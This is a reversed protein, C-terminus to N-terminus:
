SQSQKQSLKSLFVLLQDSIVVLVLTSIIMSPTIAVQQLKFLTLWSFASALLLGRRSNLSVFTLLFFSSLFVLIVVPWYNIPGLSYLPMSPRTNTFFWGLIWAFVVGLFLLHLHKLYKSIPVSLSSTSTSLHRQNKPSFNRRAVSPKDERVASVGAKKLRSGAKLGTNLSFDARLRSRAKGTNTTTKQM